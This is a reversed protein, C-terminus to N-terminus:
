PSHKNQHPLQREVTQSSCTSGDDRDDGRQHIVERSYQLEFILYMTQTKNQEVSDHEKHMDLKCHRTWGLNGQRRRQLLLLSVRDLKPVGSLEVLKSTSGNM